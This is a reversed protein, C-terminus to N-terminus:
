QLSTPPKPRDSLCLPFFVTVPFFDSRYGEALGQPRMCPFPSCFQPSSFKGATLCIAPFDLSTPSPFAPLPPPRRWFFIRKRIPCCQLPSTRALPSACLTLGECIEETGDLPDRVLQFGRQPFDCAFTNGPPPSFLHPAM